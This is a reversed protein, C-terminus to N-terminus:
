NEAFPVEPHELSRGVRAARWAEPMSLLECIVFLTAGVPIVSQTLSVSIWPLSILNEDGVVELVKWGAWALLVFFGIVLIEAIAVAIMRIDVPMRLLLGDFGLHQRRLAALAAGYYTIWALMVSAVEDYWSLSAGFKRYIVAVLVIVTLTIMLGIVVWQLAVDINRRISPIM